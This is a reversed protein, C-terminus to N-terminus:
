QQELRDGEGNRVLGLNVRISVFSAINVAVRGKMEITCSTVRFIISLGIGSLKM